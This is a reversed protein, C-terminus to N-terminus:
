WTVLVERLFAFRPIGFLEGLSKPELGVDAWLRMMSVSSHMWLHSLPNFLDRLRHVDDVTDIVPCHVMAQGGSAMRSRVEKVFGVQDPAHELVGVILILDYKKESLPPFPGAHVYLGTKERVRTPM